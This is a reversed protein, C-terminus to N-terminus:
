IEPVSDEHLRWIDRSIGPSLPLSTVKWEYAVLANEWYCWSWFIGMVGVRTGDRM